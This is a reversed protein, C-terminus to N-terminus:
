VEPGAIFAHTTASPSFTKNVIDYLGIEGTSSKCPIYNRIHKNSEYIKFGFIKGYFKRAQVADGHRFGGIILSGTPSGNGASAFINDVGDIRYSGNTFYVNHIADLSFNDVQTQKGNFIITSKGGSYGDGHCWFLYSNSLNSNRTGFLACDYKLNNSDVSFTVDFASNYNPIYGTDFYQNYTAQIYKLRIYGSPLGNDVGGRKFWM